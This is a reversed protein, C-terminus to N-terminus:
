LPSRGHTEETSGCSHESHCKSSAEAHYLVVAGLTFAGKFCNLGFEKLEKTMNTKKLTWLFYLMKQPKKTITQTHREWTPVCWDPSGRAVACRHTTMNGMRHRQLTWSKAGVFIPPGWVMLSFGPKQGWGCIYFFLCVWVCVWFVFVCLKWKFIDLPWRDRRVTINVM